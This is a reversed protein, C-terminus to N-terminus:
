GRRQGTEPYVGREDQVIELTTTIASEAASRWSACGVLRM